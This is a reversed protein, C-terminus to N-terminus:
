GKLRLDILRLLDQILYPKPVFDSAGLNKAKQINIEETKASLYIFPPFESGVSLAKLKELVEFGDMHPMNIDCLVLDPVVKCFVDIGEKGNEAQSVDHGFVELMDALTERLQVDDEITLIKAM